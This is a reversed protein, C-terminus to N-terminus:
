SHLTPLLPLLICNYSQWLPVFKLSEPVRSLDKAQRLFANLSNRASAPENKLRRNVQFKFCIKGAAQFNRENEVKESIKHPSTFNEKRELNSIVNHCM